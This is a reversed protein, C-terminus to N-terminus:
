GSIEIGARKLMLYDFKYNHAVYIGEKHQFLTKIRDIVQEEPLAGEINVPVYFARGATNSFSFGVLGATIPDSADTETDFCLVPSGNLEKVMEEVESISNALLYEVEDAKFVKHEAEEKISGFLDVQDGKGAEPPQEGLYKRTLTRFEMEKFFIGLEKSDNFKWELQEWNLVDPVETDITVMFKAHMAQDAFTQLGERQRKATISDAEKIAQDLSGFRNILAPAGKKGIGPVGPINDSTDGIIALVDIVQEPYVGFYELVGERDIVDFGGTKNNPKLMKIHDHVLQMFDKDPTVLYVDVDDANADSAITGIIDDAEFGDKEINTIGWRELMQKIYPIGIRLEEPQPPRNAKYTEDKIHRFTPAHTDWAVAVHSPAHEELMKEITNAFGLVPGTPTGDGRKLNSNVFAFHARYALAMGDLLFLLKRSM